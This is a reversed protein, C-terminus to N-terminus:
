DRILKRKLFILNSKSKGRLIGYGFNFPLVSPKQEEFLKALDKQYPVSPTKKLPIRGIYKGFVKVDWSSPDFLRLPIGSEDEIVRDTKELITKIFEEYESTHLIYEASKLILNFRTEKLFYKGEPTLNTASNKNLFIKFFYLDRLIEDGERYFSIKIGPINEERHFNQTEKELVHGSEELNVQKCDVITFGLRKMFIMIIPLVGSIHINKSDRELRKSTYYNMYSLEYVLSELNPLVSTFEEKKLKLPDSIHGPNQLGIMIYRHASQNFNYLNIFDAGSLPYLITNDNETASINKERWPYIMNLYNKEEIKWYKEIKKQYTKYKPYNLIEKFRNNESLKVGALLEAVEDWYLTEGPPPINPVVVIQSASCNFFFLFILYFLVIELNQIM